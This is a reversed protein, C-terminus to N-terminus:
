LLGGDTPRGLLANRAQVALSMAMFSLLGAMMMGFYAGSVGTWGVSVLYYDQQKAGIESAGTLFWMGAFLATTLALVAVAGLKRQPWNPVIFFGILWGVFSALLGMATLIGGMTSGGGFVAADVFPQMGLPLKEIVGSLGSATYVGSNM